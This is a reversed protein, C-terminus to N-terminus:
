TLVKLTLKIGTVPFADAKSEGHWTADLRVNAQRVGGKISLSFRDSKLLEYRPLAKTGADSHGGDGRRNKFEPATSCEIAKNPTYLHFEM